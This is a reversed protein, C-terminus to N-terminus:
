RRKDPRGGHDMDVIMLACGMAVFLPGGGAAGTAIMFVAVLLMPICCVMMTWSHGHAGGYGGTQRAPRPPRDPTGYTNM